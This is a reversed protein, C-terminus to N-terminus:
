LALKLETTIRIYAQVTTVCSLETILQFMFKNLSLVQYNLEVTAAINIKVRSTM